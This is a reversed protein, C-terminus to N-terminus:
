AESEDAAFIPPKKMLILSIIIGAVLTTFSKSQADGLAIDALTTNQYQEIMKQYEDKGIFGVMADKYQGISSLNDEIIAEVFGADLAVGHLYVLMGNLSAYIFSFIIAPSFLQIFRAFGELKTERYHQLTKFMVFLVGVLTIFKAPGIPNMGLAYYYVLFMVYSFAGAISGGNLISRYKM